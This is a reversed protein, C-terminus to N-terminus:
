RRAPQIAPPQITARLVCESRLTLSLVSVDTHQLRWREDLSQNELLLASPLNQTEAVTPLLVSHLRDSKGLQSNPRLTRSPFSFSEIPDPEAALEGRSLAASTAAGGVCEFSNKHGFEREREQPPRRHSASRQNTRQIVFARGEKSGQLGCHLCLAGGLGRGFSRSRVVIRDVAAAAVNFGRM